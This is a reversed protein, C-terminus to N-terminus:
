NHELFPLFPHINLCPMAFSLYVDMPQFFHKQRLQTRPIAFISTYKVMSNYLKFICGNPSINKGHELFPLFPHINVCPTAFSLYVDMPQFFHKQTTTNKEMYMWPLPM